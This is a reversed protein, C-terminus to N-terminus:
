SSSEATAKVPVHETGSYARNLAGFDGRGISRLICAFSVAYHSSGSLCGNFFQVQRSELSHMRTECTVCTVLRGM